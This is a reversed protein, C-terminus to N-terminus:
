IGLGGGLELTFGNDVGKPLGGFHYKGNAYVSFFLLKARVGVLAHGGFGSENDGYAKELAKQMAKAQAKEDAGPAAAAGYVADIMAEAMKKDMPKTAYIMSPGGGVYAQLGIVALSLDIARWALSLDVSMMGFLPEADGLLPFGLDAKMPLEKGTPTTVSADYTGGQFNATAEVNLPIFPVDLWLKLGFGNDISAEERAFTFEQGAMTFNQTKGGVSAGFNPAWHGGIGVLAFSPAAAFAAVLAILSLKRM